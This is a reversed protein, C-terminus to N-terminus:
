GPWGYRPVAQKYGRYADGFKADLYREERLVVGYHLLLAAPVLLVLMWDSGLAIALGAIMLGMGVYMPNRLYGYIGSPVLTLAPKWPPVNTGARRFARTGAGALAVGAAFLLVGITVRTWFLMLVTLVYVPFIWDLLLGLAVTAAAILPPPAIVGPNDPAANM